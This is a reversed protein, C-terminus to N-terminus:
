SGPRSGFLIRFFIRFKRRIPAEGEPLRLNKRARMKPIGLSLQAHRSVPRERFHDVIRELVRHAQTGTAAGGLVLARNVEDIFFDQAITEEERGCLTAVRLRVPDSFAQLTGGDLRAHVV